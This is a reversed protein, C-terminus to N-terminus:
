LCQSRMYRAQDSSEWDVERYLWLSYRRALRTWSSNFNHQLTYSPFMYSM